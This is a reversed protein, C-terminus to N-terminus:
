KPPIISYEFIKRRLFRRTKPTPQKNLLKSYLYNVRRIYSIAFPGITLAYLKLLKFQLKKSPKIFDELYSYYENMRLSITYFGTRELMWPKPVLYHIFRAKKLDRTNQKFEGFKAAYVCAIYEQPTFKIKDLHQNMADEELYHPDKIVYQYLNKTINLKRALELNMLFIGAQLRPLSSQPHINHGVYLLNEMNSDILDRIDGRVLVDTDLSLIKDLNPFLIPYYMSFYVEKTWMYPMHLSEISSSIEKNLSIDILHIKFNNLSNLPFQNVLSDIESNELCNNHVIYINFFHAPNNKLLSNLTVMCFLLYDATISFAVNYIKM